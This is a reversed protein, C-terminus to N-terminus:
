PIGQADMEKQTKAWKLKNEKDFCLFISEPKEQMIFMYNVKFFPVEVIRDDDVKGMYEAVIEELDHSKQQEQKLSEQLLQFRKLLSQYVDQRTKEMEQEHIQQQTVLVAQQQQKQEKVYDEYENGGGSLLDISM